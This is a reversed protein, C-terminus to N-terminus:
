RVKRYISFELKRDYYQTRSCEFRLYCQESIMNRIVNFYLM